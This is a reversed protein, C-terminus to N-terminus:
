CALTLVLFVRADEHERCLLPPLVRKSAPSTLSTGHQATSHQAASHQLKHELKHKTYWTSLKLNHANAQSQAHRIFTVYKLSSNSKDSHSDSDSQYSSLPLSPAPAPAPAPAASHAQAEIGLSAASPHSMRKRIIVVYLPFSLSTTGLLSILHSSILCSYYCIIFESCCGFLWSCCNLVFM